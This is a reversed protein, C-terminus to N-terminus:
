VFEFHQDEKDTCVKRLLYPVRGGLLIAIHDGERAGAPCLGISGDSAVFFCPGHCPLAENSKVHEFGHGCANRTPNLNILSQIEGPGYKQHAQLHESM